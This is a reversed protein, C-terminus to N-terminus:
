CSPFSSFPMVVADMFVTPLPKHFGGKFVGTVMEAHPNKTKADDFKSCRRVYSLFIHSSGMGGIVKSNM